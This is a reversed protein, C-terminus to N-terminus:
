QPKIGLEKVIRGWREHESRIFDSTEKPSLAGRSELGLEGLRKAVDASKLFPDLVKRIRQGIDEPLGAPGLLAFWGEVAIGPYDEELAPVDPMLSIRTRGAVAILKLKKDELLPLANTKGLYNVSTRGAVTDQVSQATDKYRVQRIRIGADKNLMEGILPALSGSAGYTLQGPKAKALKVLDAVSSVPLGPYAVMLLPASDIVMTIPTFDKQPDYPLSKLMHPNAAMASNGTLYLMYGDPKARAVAMTAIISNGGPRNEVIFRQKLARELGEAVMRAIVDPTSGASNSSVISVPGREPWAQAVCLAPWLCFLLVSTRRLLLLTM